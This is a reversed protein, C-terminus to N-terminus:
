CALFFIALRGDSEGSGAGLLFKEGENEQANEWSGFLCLRFGKRRVCWLVESVWGPLLFWLIFITPLDNSWSKSEMADFAVNSPDLVNHQESESM